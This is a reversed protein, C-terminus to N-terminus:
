RKPQFGANRLMAEVEVEMEQIVKPGIEAETKGLLGRAKLQQYHFLEEARAASGFREGSYIYIQGDRPDIYGLAGQPHDADVVIPRRGKTGKVYDAELQQLTKAAKAQQGPAVEWERLGFLKGGKAPANLGAKVKAAAQKAEWESKVLLKVLDKGSLNKLAAKSIKQLAGASVKLVLKAGTKVATAGAGVGTAIGPLEVVLEGLAHAEGREIADLKKGLQEILAQRAEPNTAIQRLAGPLKDINYISEVTSAVGDNIGDSFGKSAQRQLDWIQKLLIDAPGGIEAMPNPKPDPLSDLNNIVYERFESFRNRQDGAGAKEEILGKIGWFEEVLERYANVLDAYEQNTDYLKEGRVEFSKMKGISELLNYYRNSRQYLKEL